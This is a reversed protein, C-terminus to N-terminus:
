APASTSWSVGKDPSSTEPFADWVQVKPASLLLPWDVAYKTNEIIMSM